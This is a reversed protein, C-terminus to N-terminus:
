FSALILILSVICIFSWLVALGFFVPILKLFMIVVSLVLLRQYYISTRNGIFYNMRKYSWIGAIVVPLSGVVSEGEYTGLAILLCIVCIELILYKKNIEM